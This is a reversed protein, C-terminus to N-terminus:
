EFLLIELGVVKNDIKACYLDYCGVMYPTSTVFGYPLCGAKAQGQSVGYNASFWKKDPFLHVIGDSYFNDLNDIITDDQFHLLDYFGVMGSDVCIDRTICNYDEDQITHNLSYIKVKKPKDGSYNVLVEWDGIEADHVFNCENYEHNKLDYCPDSVIIKGSKLTFCFLSEMGEVRM